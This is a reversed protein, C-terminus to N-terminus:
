KRVLRREEEPTWDIQANTAQAAEKSVSTTQSPPRQVELDNGDKEFM